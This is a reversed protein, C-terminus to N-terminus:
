TRVAPLVNRGDDVSRQEAGELAEQADQQLVGVTTERREHCRHLETEHGDGVPVMRRSPKRTWSSFDFWCTFACTRSATSCRTGNIPTIPSRSAASAVTERRVESPASRPTTLWSANASSSRRRQRGCSTYDIALLM